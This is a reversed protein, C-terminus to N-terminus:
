QMDSLKLDRLSGYGVRVAPGMTTCISLTKWYVGKVGPPRNQDMSEQPLLPLWQSDVPQGSTTWCLRFFLPSPMSSLSHLLASSFLQGVPSVAQLRRVQLTKLNSLLQEATFNARGFGVHVNGAKDARYEVKGGKFDKVAQSGRDCLYTINCWSHHM